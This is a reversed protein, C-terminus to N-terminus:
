PGPDFGDESDAFLHYQGTRVSGSRFNYLEIVRLLETLTLKGDHDSDAAHYKTLTVIAPGVRSSDTTFGDEMNTPDVSYAGTRVTGNRTNYLEIVRLLETLGIRSDQNTDAGHWQVRELSLPDPQVLATFQTGAQRPLVLAALTQTGTTGVPVTLTYKFTVPSAPITTWAWELFGLDGSVPKVDGDSGESSAYRWGTPLLVQWGLGSLTGAYTVTNTITVTGGAVYGPGTGRHSARADIVALSAADSNVNGGTSGVLVSYTGADTTAVFAISLTATTVGTIRGDNALSVGNKMWQYTLAGTGGAVVTFTVGSDVGVAKSAPQTAVTPAGPV